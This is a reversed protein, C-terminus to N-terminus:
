KGAPKKELEKAQDLHKNLTLLTASAYAKVDANDAGAAEKKYVGIAETHGAVMAHAYRSDFAAGKLKDFPAIM